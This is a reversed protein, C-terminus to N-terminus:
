GSRLSPDGTAGRRLALRLRLLSPGRQKSRLRRGKATSLSPTFQPGATVPKSGCPRRISSCRTRLGSSPSQWPQARGGLYFRCMGSSTFAASARIMLSMASFRLSIASLRFTREWSIASVGFSVGAPRPGAQSPGAPRPGAPRPGAPRPGASRPGAQPPRDPVSPRPGRQRPGSGYAPGDAAPAPGAGPPSPPRPRLRQPPQSTPRPTQREASARHIADNARTKINPVFACKEAAVHLICDAALAIM